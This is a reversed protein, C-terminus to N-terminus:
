DRSHILLKLPLAESWISQGLRADQCVMAPWEGISRDERWLRVRDNGECVAIIMSIFDDWRALFAGIVRIAVIEVRDYTLAALIANGFLAVDFKDVITEAEMTAASCTFGLHTLRPLSDLLRCMWGGPDTALGAWDRPSTHDPAAACIHTLCDLVHGPIDALANKYTTLLLHLRHLRVTTVPAIPMWGDDQHNRGYGLVKMVISLGGATIEEVSPFVDTLIPLESFEYLAHLERTQSFVRRGADPSEAKELIQNLRAYPTSVVVTHYLLPAVEKYVTKSTQALHVVSIRDSWCLQAVASRIIITILEPPLIGLM